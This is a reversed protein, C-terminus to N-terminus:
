VFRMFVQNALMRGRQTLLLREEREGAWELLGMQILENVEDSFVDEISQDFRKNFRQRSVGTQLLRLGMMMTEQMENYRDIRTVEDTAPTRPFRGAKGYICTRIYDLPSKVNETRMGSIFGHAGAGLGIYPQNLWYQRNHRSEFTEGAGDARAWNSIEYHTYGHQDLYSMAWEYMEAADDPDPQDLLGRNIMKYLPTGPEVTLSYLSLHEPKLGVILELTSQWSALKQHPLGFILDLSINRFGAGRALYYSKLGQLYTHTRDLLQLEEPKASQIGLSIRNVGLDLLAQLYSLGLKGPNAEITIEAGPLVHFTEHLAIFVQSLLVEPLM